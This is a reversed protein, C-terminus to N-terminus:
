QFLEEPREVTVARALWAELTELDTCGTIRTRIADSVMLGRTKLVTLVNRAAEEARGKERGEERGEERGKEHGIGVYTRAFDSQWEWTAVAMLDEMYKQAAEGLGALVYDYYFARRDADISDLAQMVTDLVRPDEDGHARASLVALEPLARAQEPETVRPTASPGIMLPALVFGPHGIQIPEACDCAVGDTPCLVVLVAPCDLRAYLTVLYAPWSARKRADKRHQREVVVALVHEPGDRLLVAGDSNWEKPDCNTLVSSTLVTETHHPVDMGLSEKLLVPVM